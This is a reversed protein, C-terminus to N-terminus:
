SGRGKSGGGDGQGNGGGGSGDGGGNGNGNGNNGQGNGNSGNGSELSGSAQRDRSSSGGGYNDSGSSSHSPASWANHDSLSTATNRSATQSTSQTAAARQDAQADQFSELSQGLPAVSPASPSGQTVTPATVGGTKLGASRSSISARQGAAIGATEGSRLDRVQVLGREVGIQTDTASVSITFSTGKVVAAMFPTEVSFHPRSRKEVDFEISGVKQLVQTKSSFFSKPQVAALSGPGLTIVNNSSSLRVRGTNSTAITLGEPVAMGVKLKTRDTPSRLAWAAGSVREVLWERAWGVDAWAATILFLVLSITRTHM